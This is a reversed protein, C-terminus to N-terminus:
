QMGMQASYAARDITASRTDVGDCHYIAAVVSRRPRQYRGVSRPIAHIRGSAVAVSRVRHVRITRGYQAVSRASIPPQAVFKRSLSLSIFDGCAALGKMSEGSLTTVM